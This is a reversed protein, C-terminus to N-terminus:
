DKGHPIVFYRIWVVWLLFVAGYIALPFLYDHFLNSWTPIYYQIFGLVILRILNAGHIFVIGVPIFWIVHKIPKFFAIVFALFLIMVSVGNCGEIFRIVISADSFIDVMQHGPYCQCSVIPLDLSLMHAVQNTVNWSFPDIEKPFQKLYFQYLLTGIVYIGLFRILFFLTPLFRKM